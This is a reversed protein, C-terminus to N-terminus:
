INRHHHIADIQVSCSLRWKALRALGSLHSYVNNIIKFICNTIFTLVKQQDCVVKTTYRNITKYKKKM